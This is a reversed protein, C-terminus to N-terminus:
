HRKTKNNKKQKHKRTNSKKHITLDVLKDYLDTDIVNIHDNHIYKETNSKNYALGIPVIYEELNIGNLQKTLLQSNINFGASMIQNNENMSFVLDNAEM